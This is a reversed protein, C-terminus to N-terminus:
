SFSALFLSVEVLGADIFTLLVIAIYQDILNTKTQEARPSADVLRRVPKVSEKRVNFINSLM